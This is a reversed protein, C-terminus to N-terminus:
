YLCDTHQFTTYMDTYYTHSYFINMNNRENDCHWNIGVKLDHWTNSENSITM